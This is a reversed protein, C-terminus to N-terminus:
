DPKKRWWERPYISVENLKAMEDVSLRYGIVGLQDTL